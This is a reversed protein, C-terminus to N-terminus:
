DADIYAEIQLHGRNQFLLGKGPTGKLYKSTRYAVEFHKSGPSHMFQSVVSVAFAIDPHTYSFYILKGVLRQYKERDVVEKIEALQLKLNPEIPTEATKCGLM